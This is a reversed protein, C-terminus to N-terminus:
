ILSTYSPRLAQEIFRYHQYNRKQMEQLELPSDKIRLENIRYRGETPTDENCDEVVAVVVSNINQKYVYFLRTLGSLM